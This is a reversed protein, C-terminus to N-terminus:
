NSFKSCNNKSPCKWCESDDEAQCEGSSSSKSQHKSFLSLLEKLKDSKEYVDEDSFLESVLDDISNNSSEKARIAHGTDILHKFFAIALKRKSMRQEIGEVMESISGSGLDLKIAIHGDTIGCSELDTSADHKYPTINIIETELATVLVEGDLSDDMCLDIIRQKIKNM